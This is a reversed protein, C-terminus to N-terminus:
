GVAAVTGATIGTPTGVAVSSVDFGPPFLIDVSAITATTATIFGITHTAPVGRTNPNVTDTVNALQPSTIAFLESATPGDITSLFPDKTEVTVTYTGAPANVVGTLRITIATGAAVHASVTVSYRVVQGTPTVTGPGINNVAGVGVNSVDFGAPFTIDVYKITGATATTFDITHMATLGAAAPDPTDTPLDNPGPGTLDAAYADPMIVILALIALAVMALFTGLKRMNSM